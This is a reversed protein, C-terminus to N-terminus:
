QKIFKSGYVRDATKLQVFYIGAALVATNIKQLNGEPNFASLVQQGQGNLVSVEYIGAIDPEINLWNSTPNPFLAPGNNQLIPEVRSVVNFTTTDTFVAVGATATGIWFKGDRARQMCNIHNDPLPSNSVTFSDFQLSNNWRILGSTFTGMYKIDTSKVIEICTLTNTPIASNATFRYYWDTGSFRGLGQAPTTFWLNGFIDSDFDVITNDALQSNHNNYTIWTNGQKRSIGGNVTGVWKTNAADIFITNINNAGLPSNFMNYVIWGEDSLYVVGGATGLWAVDDADFTISRIQDDPLLSNSSNYIIWSVGDYICLGAQLTGVWLRGATDFALSRIQNVPLGSNSSDLVMWNTGDFKALGNDTGIWTNGLSDFAIARIVDEPLGSNGTNYVTWNSQAQLTQGWLALLITLWKLSTGM